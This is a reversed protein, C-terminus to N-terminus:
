KKSEEASSQEALFKLADAVHRSDLRFLPVSGTLHVEELFGKSVLWKLAAETRQLSRHIQEELLRWQTLGELSDVAQRNRVFYSLLQKVVELEVDSPHPLTTGVPM